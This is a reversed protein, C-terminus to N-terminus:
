KCNYSLVPNLQTLPVPGSPLSSPLPSSGHSVLLNKRSASPNTPKVPKSKVLNSHFKSKSPEAVGSLADMDGKLAKACKRAAYERVTIRKPSVEISNRSDAPSIPSVTQEVVAPLSVTATIPEVSLMTSAAIVPTHLSKVILRAPTVVPAPSVTEDVHAPPPATLLVPDICM